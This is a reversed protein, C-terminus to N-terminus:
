PKQMRLRWGVLISGSHYQPGLEDVSLGLRESSEVIGRMAPETQSCRVLDQLRRVSARVDDEFRDVERTLAAPAAQGHAAALKGAADITVDIMLSNPAQHAAQRLANLAVDFQELARRAAPTSRQGGELHRRLKRLIMTEDLVLAAQRLSERANRAVVSDAHHLIFQACGGPVLVRHIEGVAVEVDAYELAYQGSVAEFSCDAFPLEETAVQAHFRIGAFLSVGDRVNRVPDIVALDSGHIELRRGAAIACERAILPIVGNGTGIDLIRAGEGLRSFFAEWVQRLELTYGGDPGIPCSALTGGRYYAEWHRLSNSRSAPM